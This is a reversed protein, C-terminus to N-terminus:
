RMTTNICSAVINTAWAPFTNVFSSGDAPDLWWNQITVTYTFNDGNNSSLPWDTFVKLDASWAAHVAISWLSVVFPLFFLTTLFISLSRIFTFKKMFFYLLYFM